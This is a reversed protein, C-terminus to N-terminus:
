VVPHGRSKNYIIHDDADKAATGMTFFAKKLARPAAESGRGLTRFVANDLWIGDDRVNFDVVTDYNTRKNLRTEFVYTDHGDGGTLRDHGLGGRLIDNGMGGFSATTAPLDRSSTTATRAPSPMWARRAPLLLKVGAGFRIPGMAALQEATFSVPQGGSDFTDVGRAAFAHIQAVTLASLAAGTGSVSVADSATLAITTGTLALGQAISLDLLNTTADLADVGRTALAVSTPRRLATGADSIVVSDNAALTLTSAQLAAAKALTLTVLNDIADLM